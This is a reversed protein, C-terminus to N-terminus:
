EKIKTTTPSATFPKAQSTTSTTAPNTIEPLASPSPNRGARDAMLILEATLNKDNQGIWKIKKIVGSYPSRVMSLAAIQSEIIQLKATAESVQFARDRIQKEHEQIQRQYELRARDIEVDRKALEITHKYEEYKYNQEAKKLKGQALAKESIQKQLEQDADAFKSQEHDLTSPPLSGPELTKLADIMRQQNERHKSSKEVDVSQRDINAQEELFEAPPLDPIGIFKRPPLPETIVQALRQLQFQILRKQNELRAREEVRDSLIQGAQIVDGEQVRLDKPASLTLSLKFRKTNSKVSEIPTPEPSPSPTVEQAQATCGHLFILALVLLKNKM